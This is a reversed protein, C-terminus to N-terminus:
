VSEPRKLHRLSWAAQESIVPDEDGALRELTARHRPDGSNGMVLLANRLLGRRKSRWLPTGRFRARWAAEDLSALEELDLAPEGPPPFAAGAKAFRNWPCVEQCIDCGFLRDQVGERLEEAIADRNEITLFSICKSGDLVREKPFADTPCADLCATCSGCADDVSDSGDSPLELNLAIGAIFFYSGNKRNILMTNKGIWGLGALRAYARELIPSSDVFIRGDSGPQRQKLWDLVATLRTKLSDHYDPLRAYRSVRGKNPRTAEPANDAYNFGCALVSRADPYWQTIERRVAARAAMYTMTGQMGASLWPVLQDAEDPKAASAIGVLDAGQARAQNKLEAALTSM